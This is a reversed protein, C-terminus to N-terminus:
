REQPFSLGVTAYTRLSSKTVSPRGGRLLPEVCAEQRRRNVDCHMLYRRRSIVGDLGGADGSMDTVCFTEHFGLLPEGLDLDEGVLSLSPLLNDTASASFPLGKDFAAAHGVLKGRLKLSTGTGVARLRAM